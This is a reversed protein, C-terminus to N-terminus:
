RRALNLDLLMALAEDEIQESALGYARAVARNLEDHASTLWEPRTNYLNTM